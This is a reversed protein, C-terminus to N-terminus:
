WWRARRGCCGIWRWCYRGCRAGAWWFLWLCSFPREKERERKNRGGAGNESRHLYLSFLRHAHLLDYTRPYTSFAECWDQYTGIFGREFVAGLTDAVEAAAGGAPVVNMVWVPLAALAAAFGGLGANMDMVNRYRGEALAPVLRRYHAVREAWRRGDELFEAATVGAVTGGEVRPPVARGREPWRELEGGGEEPLPTICREM